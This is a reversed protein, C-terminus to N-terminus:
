RKIEIDLIKGAYNVAEGYTGFGISYEWISNDGYKVKRYVKYKEGLDFQSYAVAVNEKDSKWLVVNGNIKM